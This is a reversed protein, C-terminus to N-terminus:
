GLKVSHTKLEKGAVKDRSSQILELELITSNLRASLEKNEIQTSNLRTSLEKNEIQTSNLRTSLEENEIQTSNLRASLEKNEIQTSNLRTSLEENEIQTSNLRTSLEENEIQTSNLRTSLEKNEIQTSNLRASLEKNEIQTSNLRTSLEENEIQTSNLRASLEKNEIQTSNLRTSLEKNEIQKSNLRTSLEKNEIQTSNLRTSLEKKEALAVRLEEATSNQKREAKELDIRAVVCQGVYNEAIGGTRPQKLIDEWKIVKYAENQDVGAINLCMGANAMSAVESSSLEKRYVNLYAMEGAFGHNRRSTAIKGVVVYGGTPFSRGSPTTQSGLLVGNVYYRHTRSSYAWTVCVHHWTGKPVTFSSGKNIYSRFIVIFNGDARIIMEPRPAYYTFFARDRDSSGVDKIWACVSIAHTLSNWDPSFQIYNNPSFTLSKLRSLDDSAEVSALLIVATSLFLVM